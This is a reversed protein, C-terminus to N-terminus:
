KDALTKTKKEVNRGSEGTMYVPNKDIELIM